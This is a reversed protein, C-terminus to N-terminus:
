HRLEAWNEVQIRGIEDLIVSQGCIRRSLSEQSQINFATVNVQFRIVPCIVNVRGAQHNGVPLQQFDPPAVVPALGLHRLELTTASGLNM